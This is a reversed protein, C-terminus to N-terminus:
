IVPQLLIGNRKKDELIAKPLGRHKAPDNTNVAIETAAAVNAM